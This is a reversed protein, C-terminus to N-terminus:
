SHILSSSVLFHSTHHDTRGLSSNSMWSCKNLYIIKIYQVVLSILLMIRHKCPHVTSCVTRRATRQHTRQEDNHGELHGYIHWNFQRRVVGRFCWHATQGVTLSDYVTFQGVSLNVFLGMSVTGRFKQAHEHSLSDLHIKLAIIAATQHKWKWHTSSRCSLWAPDCQSAALKALYVM